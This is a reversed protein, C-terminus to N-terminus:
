AAQGSPTGESLGDDNRDHGTVDRGNRRKRYRRQREAATRDRPSTVDAGGTTQFAAAPDIGAVELIARAVTIARDMSVTVWADEEQWEEAHQRICVEGRENQFVAIPMQMQVVIDPNDYWDFGRAM